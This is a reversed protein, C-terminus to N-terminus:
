PVPVRDLQLPSTSQPALHGAQGVRHGSVFGLVVEFEGRVEPVVDAECETYTRVCSYTQKKSKKKWLFQKLTVFSTVMKMM